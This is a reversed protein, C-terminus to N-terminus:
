IRRKVFYEQLIGSLNAVIVTFECQNGFDFPYAKLNNDTRTGCVVKKGKIADYLLFFAISM